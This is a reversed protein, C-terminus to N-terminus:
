GPADEMADKSTKSRDKRTEDGLGGLKRGRRAKSYMELKAVNECLAPGDGAYRDV